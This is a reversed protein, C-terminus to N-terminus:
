NNMLNGLVNTRRTMAKYCTVACEHCTSRCNYYVTIVQTNNAGMIQPYKPGFFHSIYM